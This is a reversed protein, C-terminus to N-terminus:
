AKPTGYFGNRHRIRTWVGEEITFIIYVPKRFKEFVTQHRASEIPLIGVAICISTCQEYCSPNQKFSSPPLMSVTFSDFFGVQPM